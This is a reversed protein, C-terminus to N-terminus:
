KCCVIQRSFWCVTFQFITKPLTLLKLSLQAWFQWFEQEFHVGYVSVLVWVVAGKECRERAGPYRRHRTRSASPWRRTSVYFIMEPCGAYIQCHSRLFFTTAVTHGRWKWVLDSCDPQLLGPTLYFNLVDENLLITYHRSDTLHFHTYLM